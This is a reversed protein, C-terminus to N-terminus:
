QHLVQMRHMRASRTWFALMAMTMRLVRPIWLRRRIPRAICPHPSPHQPHQPKALPKSAAAQQQQAIPQSLHPHTHSHSHHHLRTCRGNPHIARTSKPRISSAVHKNSSQTHELVALSRYRRHVPTHMLHLNNNPNHNAHQSIPPWSIRILIPGRMTTGSSTTAHSDTARLDDVSSVCTVYMMWPQNHNHTPPPFPFLSLRLAISAIELKYFGIGLFEAIGPLTIINLPM